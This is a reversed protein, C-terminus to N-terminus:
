TVREKELDILELYSGYNSDGGIIIKNDENPLKKM